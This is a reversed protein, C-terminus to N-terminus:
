RAGVGRPAAFLIYEKLPVRTKRIDIFQQPDRQFAIFLPGASIQGLSNNGDVDNYGRRLIRQGGNFDPHAL